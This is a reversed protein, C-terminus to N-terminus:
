RLSAYTCARVCSVQRWFFASLQENANKGTIEVGKRGLKKIFIVDQAQVELHNGGM